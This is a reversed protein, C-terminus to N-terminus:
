TVRKAPAVWTDCASPSKAQFAAKAWATSSQRSGHDRPTGPADDDGSYAAQRYDQLKVGRLDLTQQNAGLFASAFCSAQLEHRRMQELRAPGTAASWRIDFYSSIQVLEQVHHGFEHAFAFQLDAAAYVRDRDGDEVFQQWDLYIGFNTACYFGAYKGRFPGCATRAGQKVTYVTAAFYEAQARAVMPRWARDLCVLMANAYQQVQKQTRLAIQPVKCPVAPIRGASYIKNHLLFRDEPSRYPTTSPAVPTPSPTATPTAATSAATSASVAAPAHSPTCGASLLIALAVVAAPGHRM